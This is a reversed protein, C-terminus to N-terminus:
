HLQTTSPRVKTPSAKTVVPSLCLKRQFDQTTFIRPFSKHSFHSNKSTTKVCNELSDQTNTPYQSLIHTPGKYTANETKASVLFSNNHSWVIPLLMGDSVTVTTHWHYLCYWVSSFSHSTTTQYLTRQVEGKRRTMWQQWQDLGWPAHFNMKRFM